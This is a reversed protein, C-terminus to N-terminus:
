ADVISLPHTVLHSRELLIVDRLSLGKLVKVVAFCLIHSLFICVTWGFEISNRWKWARFSHAFVFPNDANKRCKKGDWVFSLQFPFLDWLINVRRVAFGRFTSKMLVEVFQLHGSVVYKWVFLNANIIRNRLGKIKAILVESSTGQSYLLTEWVKKTRPM